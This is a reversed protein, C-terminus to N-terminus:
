RINRNGKATERSRVSLNLHWESIHGLVGRSFHQPGQHRRSHTLENSTVEISGKLKSHSFRSIRSFSDPSPNKCQLGRWLIFSLSTTVGLRKTSPARNRSSLAPQVVLSAVSFCDLNSLLKEDKTWQGNDM